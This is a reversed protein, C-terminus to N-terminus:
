SHGNARPLTQSLLVRRFVRNDIVRHQAYPRTTTEITSRWMTTRGPAFGLSAIAINHRKDGKPCFNWAAQYLMRARSDMKDLLIDPEPNFSGHADGVEVADAGGAFLGDIVANVDNTLWERAEFYEENGFDM